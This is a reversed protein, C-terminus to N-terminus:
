PMPKRGDSVTSTPPRAATTVLTEGLSIVAMAGAAEVPTM